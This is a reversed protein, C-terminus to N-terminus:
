RCYMLKLQHVEELTPHRVHFGGLLRHHLHRPAVLQRLRQVDRRLQTHGVDEGRPRQIGLGDRIRDPRARRLQAADKAREDRGADEALELVAAERGVVLRGQQAGARGTPHAVHHDVEALLHVAGEALQQVGDAGPLRNSWM